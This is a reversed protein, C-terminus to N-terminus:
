AENFYKKHQDECCKLYDRDQKKYDKYQCIHWNTDYFKYM